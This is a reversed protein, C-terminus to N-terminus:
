VARRLGIPPYKHDRLTDKEHSVNFYGPDRRFSQPRFAHGALLQLVKMSKLTM